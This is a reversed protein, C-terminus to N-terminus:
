VWSECRLGKVRRFERVNGTVLMLDLSLAHSGILTDLPGIEVGRRSLDARVAGYTEIARDGFALAEYEERLIRLKKTNKERHQSRRVGYSLEAVTIASLVFDLRSALQGVFVPQEASSTLESLARAQTDM